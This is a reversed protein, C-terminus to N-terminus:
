EEEKSKKFSYIQYGTFLAIPIVIICFSVVPKKVTMVLGTPLDIKRQMVGIIQDGKIPIDLPSGAKVGKTQVMQIGNEEYIDVIKHTIPQGKLLGTTAIYTVVSGIEYDDTRKTLIVDGVELEGTMSDTQVIYITYGFVNPQEGKVRQISTILLVGLIALLSTHIIVNFIIKIVKKFM